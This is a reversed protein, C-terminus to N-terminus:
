LGEACWRSRRSEALRKAEMVRLVIGEPRDLDTWVIRVVEYGLRTIESERRKEAALAQRGDAGSYKVMGDFEVVVLGDVLFDVRGLLRKGERVEFQPVMAFGADHLLIRTRSEGVSESRADAFEIALRVRSHWKPAVHEVAAELDAMTCRRSQLASDMACVGAEFGYRAAVQVCAVAISTCRVDGFRHGPASTPRHLTIGAVTRPRAPSEIMVADRPAGFFALGFLALASQHSAREGHPRSRLVALVKLRYRTAIDAAEFTDSVIYARHRVRIVEGARVLATLQNGSIGLEAADASSFVGDNALARTRLRKDM